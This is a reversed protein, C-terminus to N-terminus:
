AELEKGARAYQGDDIFPKLNELMKKAADKSLEKSKALLVIFDAPLLFPTGEQLMLAIFQKDDSLVAAARLETFAQKAALEGKGLREDVGTGSKQKENGYLAVINEKVLKEATFADQHMGKKGETVVEEFVEQPIVLKFGRLAGFLIKAKVLKIFGDSDLVIKYM